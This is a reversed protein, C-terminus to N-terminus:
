DDDRRRRYERDLDDGVSKPTRLTQLFELVKSQDEDSLAAFADRSAEAEGAHQLIAERITLARGDHMYPATDAVGWLRATTFFPDLDSGFSEALEEGVYHRKLDAFLPVRIGGSRTKQFGTPKKTLDVEYFVNEFPETDVEPFSFPLYRSETKLAPIHCEACGVAKFLGYGQKATRSRRTMRPRELTTNFIAVASIEGVTIEDVVGDNDADTGAGFAEVPQIGMHFEFAGVDFGRTTAFSGKRGFPRVVLDDDIGEVKDFVFAGDVFSLFGFSVGKTVLEVEVGPNDVATQKLSQLDRTMEKGLLEVGGAGFVFPPNIFRGDFAAIGGGVSGTPDIVTPQFMASAGVGGFGGVGFKMPVDSASLAFHCELCSQSDLGNVRLLMGNGQLTPRGGFETPSESPDWPGDGYGDYQNFPASFIIRGIKRIELLSLAGSEIDAQTIEVGALAPSEGPAPHDTAFSISSVLLFLLFVGGFAISKM